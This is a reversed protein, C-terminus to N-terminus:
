DIPRGYQDIRTVPQTRKDRQVGFGSANVGTRLPVVGLHLDTAVVQDAVTVVSVPPAFFGQVDAEISCRGVPVNLFRFAGQEDSVETRTTGDVACALTVRVGAGSFTGEDAATLTVTGRVTASPNVAAGASATAFVTLLAAVFADSVLTVLSKVELATSRRREPHV